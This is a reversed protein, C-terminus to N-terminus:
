EILVIKRSIRGAGSDLACFYIGAPLPRGQGDKGDWIVSHIGALQHGSALRRVARGSVDRLTLVVPGDRGLQYSIATARGFPNPAASLEVGPFWKKSGDAIGVTVPVKHVVIPNATAVGESPSGAFFGAQQDIMYSVRFTDDEFYDMASPFRCSWTGQDTIRTSPLWSAGNDGIDQAYFIDARLRSTTTEVNLSDFQEWAVYLGGYRDEGISPRCAYTANSGISGQMNAPNCGAIHIRSWAPVNDPCYHWIQSPVVFATDGVMPLLNAVIHLRDHRDYFPFLSTIDYSTLTDGGFADPPVLETPSDWTMGGDTSRSLYADEPTGTSIEWVLCVSNSVKSAAINHTPFGPSPVFGTLPTSWHPWSDPAIRCYTLEYDTTMPLIHVAGNRGVAIPPWQCAPLDTSDSYGGTGVRAVWPRSAGGLTAHSSIFPTGSTDADISGYGARKGFVTQGSAMFDTTNIYAWAGSTDCSNYRMNRDPFSSGSMSSSYMWVAYSGHGASNVLMRWIPGSFQWDYTTGGITDVTGIEARFPEGGPAPLRTTVATGLPTTREDPLATRSRLWQGSVASLCCCVALLVSAIGM